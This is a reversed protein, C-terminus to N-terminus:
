KFKEVYRLPKHSYQRAGEALCENCPDESDETNKNQCTPCYKDFEVLKMNEDM